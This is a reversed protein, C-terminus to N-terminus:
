ASLHGRQDRAAAVGIIADGMFGIRQRNGGPERRDLRRGDRLGIESDPRIDEGAPRQFGAFRQQHMAAGGADAGRRDREGLREARADDDGGSRILFGLLALPEAGIEADIVALVIEDRERKACGSARPASTM